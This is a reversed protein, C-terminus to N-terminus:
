VEIRFTASQISCPTSYLVDNKVAANSSAQRASHQWARYEYWLLWLSPNAIPWPQRFLRHVVPHNDQSPQWHAPHKFHQKGINVAFAAISILLYGNFIACCQLSNFCKGTFLGHLFCWGALIDLICGVVPHLFLVSICAFASGLGAFLKRAAWAPKNILLKRRKVPLSRTHQSSGALSRGRANNSAGNATSECVM